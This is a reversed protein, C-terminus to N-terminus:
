ILMQVSPMRELDAVNMSMEGITTNVQLIQKDGETMLSVVVGKRNFHKGGVGGHIYNGRNTPLVYNIVLSM